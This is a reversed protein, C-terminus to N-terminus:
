QVGSWKLLEGFVQDLNREDACIQIYDLGEEEMLYQIVLAYKLYSLIQKTGDELDLVPLGDGEKDEEALFLALKKKLKGDNKFERATYEAHGELKWNLKGLTSTIVYSSNTQYQLNHTFEHALLWTLNFRRREYNNITWQTEAINTAFDITCDNIITKNLMAYALGGGLPSMGPYASGDNLCLDISLDNTFISAQQIIEIANSVVTETEATLVQNHYITVFDYQTEKAYSWQPNLLLLVWCCTSVGLVSLSGLVVKKIIKIM